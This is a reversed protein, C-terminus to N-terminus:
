RGSEEDYSFSKYTAGTMPLGGISGIRLREVSSWGLRLKGRQTDEALCLQFAPFRDDPFDELWYGYSHLGCTPGLHAMFGADNIRRPVTTRSAQYVLNGGDNVAELMHIFTGAWIAFTPAISAGFVELWASLPFRFADGRSKEHAWCPKLTSPFREHHNGPTFWQPPIRYIYTSYLPRQCSTAQHLHNCHVPWLIVTCDITLFSTERESSIM